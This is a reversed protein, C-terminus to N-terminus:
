MVAQTSLDEEFRESDIKFRKIKGTLEGTSGTLEHSFNQLDSVARLVEESGNKIEEMASDVTRSLGQINAMNSATESTGKLIDLAAASIKEASEQVSIVADMVQDSGTSIEQTSVEFENFSEAIQEMGSIVEALKTQLQNTSQTSMEIKTIINQVTQGIINSNTGSNEALKRIEDAVVAFGRGAEGAHAAEIAANMALLNTQAAVSQIVDVIELISSISNNMDAISESTKNLLSRGEEVGGVLNQSTLKRSSAVSAMSKLSAIMQEVSATSQTVASTQEGTQRNLIEITRQIEETSASAARIEGDLQEIRYKISDLNSSIEHVASSSEEASAALNEGVHNSVEATTRIDRILQQLSDVFDNFNNGISGIEDMTRIPIRSTLDGGGQSITSLERGVAKLPKFILRRTVFFIAGACILTCAAVIGILIRTVFQLESLIEDLDKRFFIFWDAAMEYDGSEFSHCVYLADKGKYRRIFQTVDKLAQEGYPAWAAKGEETLVLSDDPHAIMQGESDGFFLYATEGINKQAIFQDTFHSMHPAIIAAGIREGNEMVPVSIVFIPTGTKMSRYLESVFVDTGGRIRETYNRGAGKGLTQGRVSDIFFSGAPIDYPEGDFDITIPKNIAFSVLPINELYDYNEYTTELFDRASQYAERNLPDRCVAQVSPNKAIERALRVQDEMWSELSIGITETVTNGLRYANDILDSRIISYVVIGSVTFSLIIIPLVIILFKLVVSQKKAM